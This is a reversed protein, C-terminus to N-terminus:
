LPRTFSVEDFDDVFAKRIENRLDKDYDYIRLATKGIMVVMIASAIIKGNDNISLPTHHASGVICGENVVTFNINHM